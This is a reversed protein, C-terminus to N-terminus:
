QFVLQGFTSPDYDIPVQWNASTALRAQKRRFNLGWELGPKIKAGLLALPIRVEVSWYDTGKSTKVEYKGNWKPDGAMYGGESPTIKQDFVSGLPSFYIQYVEQKKIDPQLFYGVCDEGYIPADQGTLMASLSDMNSEKCYAALYLSNDDWAFYFRTPDCKDPGEIEGGDPHIPFLQFGREHLTEVVANGFSKRSHSVGVIAINKPDFFSQINKDMLNRREM